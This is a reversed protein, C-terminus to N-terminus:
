RRSPRQCHKNGIRHKRPLGTRILIYKHICAHAHQASITEEHDEARVQLRTPVHMTSQYANLGCVRPASHRNTTPKRNDAQNCTSKTDCMTKSRLAARASDTQSIAPFLTFCRAMFHSDSDMCMYMFFGIGYKGTFHMSMWYNRVKGHM